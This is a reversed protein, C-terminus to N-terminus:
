IGAENRLKDTDAKNRLLTKATDVNNCNNVVVAPWSAPPRQSAKWTTCIADTEALEGQNDMYYKATRLPMDSRLSSQGSGSEKTGCAVLALLCPLLWPAKTM